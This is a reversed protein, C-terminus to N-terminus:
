YTQAINRPKLKKIPAAFHVVKSKKTLPEWIQFGVWDVNVSSLLIEFPNVQRFKEALAKKVLEYRAPHKESWKAFDENPSQSLTQVFDAMVCEAEAQLAIAKIKRAIEVVFPDFSAIVPPVVIPPPGGRGFNQDCGALDPRETLTALLTKFTPTLRDFVQNPATLSVLVSRPGQDSNIITALYRTKQGLRESNQHIADIWHLNRVTIERAYDVQSMTRTGGPLNVVKGQSLYARFTDLREGPLSSTDVVVFTTGSLEPKKSRCYFVGKENVNECRWDGELTFTIHSLVVAANIRICFVLILAFLSKIRLAHM